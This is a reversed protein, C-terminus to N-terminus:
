SPRKGNTDLFVKVKELTEKWIDENSRFYKKYRSDNIFETWMDYIEQTKMIQQKKSYKQSQSSRWTGLNKEEINKSTQSPLKNNKNIFEKLYELINIWKILNDNFYKKYKPDNIFKTWSNFIEIDKMIETNTKYKRKQTNIWQTETKNPLRKNNDIFIKMENLKIYWKEKETIFYEKYQSDNIFETWMDYIEQTKMIYQKKTYNKIQTGLWRGLFKEDPNKSNSNPRRENKDIFTKVKELNEEWRKANWNIDVDLVGQSFTKNLDISSEKIKWLVELDPHQHVDFLKPRKKPPTTTRKKIRQKKDRKVVPSYTKDDECYFLRFPEEDIAEENIYKVPEDYNQTHIEITKESLEAIENLIDSETEGEFSKTDLEIDEKECIYKLNDLLTGKSEEVILGQKKLNDKVEKPAYMNPYKLCMEFLDPDYQYKFASIVNLATNFNGCESLEERIMQDRQEATDMSAYKTIDVECPILIIAPPMNEEPIRVLRGIRQSEKVISKSPNIPVGMNAWKTDIGENLIGCSSLIYIRGEVKRDFDKIIQQRTPTGSHVGKLIVNEVSYTAKTHPFEENQIKTFLKKVLKQNKTSAFDNVFSINSNM